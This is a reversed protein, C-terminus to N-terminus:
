RAGHRDLWELLAEETIDQVPREIDVSATKVRKRTSRKLRVSFPVQPDNGEADSEIGGAYRAVSGEVTRPAPAERRAPKETAVM